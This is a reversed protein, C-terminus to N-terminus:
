IRFEPKGIRGFPEVLSHRSLGRSPSQKAFGQERLRSEQRAEGAHRNGTPWCTESDFYLWDSSWSRKEGPRRRRLAVVGLTPHPKGFTGSSSPATHDLLSQYVTHWSGTQHPRRRLTAAFSFRTPYAGLWKRIQDPDLWTKQRSPLAFLFCTKRAHSAGRSTSLSGECCGVEM